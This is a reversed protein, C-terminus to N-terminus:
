NAVVVKAHRIVKENLTYGKQVCDIVKGKLSEESAPVTAIAEMQEPNFDAEKSAIVKIGNQTLYSIFKNYILSIGDAISQTADDTPHINDLAREFDDVVPLINTLAQEGANKILEAKEKLTRKRYNDYEAMLRLHTDKLAALETALKDTLEESTESADENVQENPTDEAINDTTNDLIEPENTLDKAEM